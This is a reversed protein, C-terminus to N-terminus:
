ARSMTDAFAALSRHHFVPQVLKRQQKWVAGESTVLGEGLTLKLPEYNRGKVYNEHNKVLVHEIDESRNALVARFPGFRYWVLATGRRMGDIVMGLPDRKFDIIDSIM